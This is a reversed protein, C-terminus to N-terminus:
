GYSHIRLERADVAREAHQDLPYDSDGAIYENRAFKGDSPLLPELRALHLEAFRQGAVLTKNL